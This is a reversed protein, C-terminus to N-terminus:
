LAQRKVYEDRYEILTRGIYQKSIFYFLEELHQYLQVVDNETSFYPSGGPMLESSHLVFELYDSGELSVMDVLKKMEELNNGSPRLWMDKGLLFYKIRRLIDKNSKLGKLNLVRKNRITVPVELINPACSVFDPKFSASKFNTGKSGITAGSLKSWDVLPTVSCDVLYGTKELIKYYTDNIAWRGARHSLMKTNFKEQLFNTLFNVKEKMVDQPFEILYSNGSNANIPLSFIPPSNWAHLHMGIECRGRQLTDRAFETFVDSCAMEYNVLYTPKFKYKECLSQFRFICNANRTTITTPKNWLNDGETDITIIISKATKM